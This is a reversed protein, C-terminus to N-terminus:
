EAALGGLAAHAHSMEALRAIFQDVFVSMSAVEEKSKILLYNYGFLAPIAVFLGACTAVMAAAIGPAIANVNVDGAVAIAAFTIMVGVVTGLLGIFPGGSIAITLLVMWRNLAQTERILSADMTARIAEIAQETLPPAHRLHSVQGLRERLEEIGVSLMRYLPASEIRVFEERPLREAGVGSLMREFQFVDRGARAFAALFAKNSKGVQGIYRARDAMVWWSIAAMVLLIGIIVWGDTTVSKLIVIFYGGGFASNQEDQGFQVFKSDAVQSVFLARIYGPPRATKSIEVEDMGGAFGATVADGTADGGISTAGALAPLKVPLTDRPQGDVYLVVQQDATVAIHHWMQPAIAESSDGRQAAGGAAQVSVYPRGQEIGVILSGSADHRAYLVESRTDDPRIWAAFTLAGGDPIALSSKAPVQIATTGDLKVGAGILSGTDGPVAKAATNGYATWDRAPAGKEAFHYVLVQDADYAARSDGGSAAKSNGYYMWLKSTAGAKVEPMDVWVLGVGLVPDFTEVHFNLPTKDDAAIFRLDTGDEKADTFKFNGDHLRILVPVRGADSPLNGGTPGADITIEKRYSWDGNWWAGAPQAFGALGAFLILVSLVFRM